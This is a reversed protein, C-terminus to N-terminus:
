SIKRRQLDTNKNLNRNHEEARKKAVLRSLLYKGGVEGSHGINFVAEQLLDEIQLRYQQSNQFLELVTEHVKDIQDLDLSKGVKDRWLIDTPQNIYDKYEPNLVKMPTNIFLSPKKTAYSFEYAIGSWDTILLDATFITVNSSFDTELLVGAANLRKIQVNLREIKDPFRKIFEPHPRVVVHWDEKMLQQVLEIICTELINEEQWSPAILIRKTKSKLANKQEVKKYECLLNDLLGYGCSILNKPQLGYRAETERVERIQHPGTCFLTDFHDGAGKRACMTGSTMGHSIYIYEIDKRVYSRKLYYNDLDPTTMVVIDADMKMFLTITKQPSIYYPRIRPQTKAMEFVQDKPDNTVYHITVNSHSLLYEIINQFYKYFGSKESYFVLHKNGISFFKRYDTKERQKEERSVKGGQASINALDEQSSRLAKYDVKKVPPIIVNCTLQNLISFLNSCIWYLAVGLSVFAGLFLSIAISIGNTIRQEAKSQERQLPNIRNQAQGLVLAALGAALPSLLTWGGTEVPILGLAPSAGTDTITHIAAVMGTLIVIQLALPLLGLLPHYGERKYLAVQEEGIREKDGYFAIKLRNIEPLLSVMKLSNVHGWLSLPLLVIKTLLTFAVIAIVYNGCLTYCLQITKAFIVAIFGSM